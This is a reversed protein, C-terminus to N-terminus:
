NVIMVNDDQPIIIDIEPGNVFDGSISMHCCNHNDINSLIIHYNTDGFEKYLIDVHLLDSYNYFYTWKLLINELAVINM